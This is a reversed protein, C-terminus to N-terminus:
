GAGCNVPVTARTIGMNLTEFAGAYDENPIVDVMGSYCSTFVFTAKGWPTRSVTLPDFGAGYIGGETIVLDIEVVDGAVDGVGILWLQNGLPDYTYYTVVVVGGSAADIMFGEGDRDPNWWTGNIASTIYFGSRLSEQLYLMVDIM